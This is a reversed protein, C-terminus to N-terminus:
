TNEWAPFCFCKHCNLLNFFIHLDIKLWKLNVLMWEIESCMREGDFFFFINIPLVSSCEICHINEKSWNSIVTWSHWQIWAYVYILIYKPPFLVALHCSLDKKGNCICIQKKYKQINVFVVVCTHEKTDFYLFSVLFFDLWM